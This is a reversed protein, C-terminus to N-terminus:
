NDKSPLSITFRSGAGPQSVVRLEGQHQQIIGYSISLGLGTGKQKGKTSFFPEFIHDINKEGIGIGNDIVEVVVMEDASHWQSRVTIMGGDPMAQRANLILNMLVQKIKQPDITVHPLKDALEKRVTIHDKQLQPSVVKFVDEICSRIDCRVMKSESVRAFNLLAEVVSKCQDTHKQIIRIDGITQANQEVEKAMLDAYCKIVGLPNNIEHAVGSALQGIAALKETQALHKEMRRRNTVDRLMMDIGTFNNGDDRRVTASIMVIRKKGQRDVMDVEFGTVSDKKELTEFFRGADQVDWFLQYATEISLAEKRDIFEFLAIGAANIDNIRSHDDLIIIADQSTEFILRYKAESTQLEDHTKKLDKAVSEFANKLQSVEDGPVHKQLEIDSESNQSIDRFTTLLGKLETVVTRNFLLHFLGLLALLCGVTLLFINLAAEKVAVFPIDVPIYITDAAVVDGVRYNFGGDTGYIKKLDAPAKAPNGHCRLCEAEAYIPKLRTYYSHRDNKILGHWENANPNENFWDLMKAEFEDAANAPNMPNTAARKYSFEPFRERLRDMIERGIYSTSMAQPIFDDKPVLEVMKPRLVDKVYTRTADATSIFIETNKYVNRTVMKKLYTYTLLAIVVSFVLLITTSGVRFKFKATKKKM